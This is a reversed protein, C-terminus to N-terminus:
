AYRIRVRRNGNSQDAPLKPEAQKPVCIRYRRNELRGLGKSLVIGAMFFILLGLFNVWPMFSNESGALLLGFVWCSGTVTLKIKGILKSSKHQM